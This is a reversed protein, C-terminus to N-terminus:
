RDRVADFRLPRLFCYRAGFPLAYRPATLQCPLARPLVGKLGELSPPPVRRSSFQEIIAFACMPLLVLIARASQQYTAPSALESTPHRHLDVAFAKGTRTGAVRVGPPTGEHNVRGEQAIPNLELPDHGWPPRRKAPPTLAASSALPAQFPRAPAARARCLPCTPATGNKPSLLRKGRLSSRLTEHAPAARLALAPPLAVASMFACKVSNGATPVHGPFIGQERSFAGSPARHGRNWVIALDPTEDPLKPSRGLKRGIRWLRRQERPKRPSRQASYSPPSGLSVGGCDRSVRRRRSGRRRFPLPVTVVRDKASRDGSLFRKIDSVRTDAMERTRVGSSTPLIAEAEPRSRPVVCLATPANTGAMRLPSESRAALGPPARWIASAMASCGAPMRELRAAVKLPACPASLPLPRRADSSPPPTSLVSTEVSLRNTPMPSPDVRVSIPSSVGTTRPTRPRSCRAWPRSALPSARMSM